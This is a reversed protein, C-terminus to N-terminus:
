CNGKSKKRFGSAPSPLMKVGRSKSIAQKHCKCVDKAVALEGSPILLLLLLM